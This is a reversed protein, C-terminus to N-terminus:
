GLHVVRVFPQGTISDMLGGQPELIHGTIGDSLTIRDRVDVAVPAVFSIVAKFTVDIGKATSLQGRQRSVLAPLSVAVDYSKEGFGGLNQIFAEHSVDEMIGLGQAAANAAGVASTLWAASGM